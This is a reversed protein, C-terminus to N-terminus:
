FVWGANVRALFQFASGAFRSNSWVGFSTSPLQADIFFNGSRFGFSVLDARAALYNLAGLQLTVGVRPLWYFAFDPKEIFTVAAGITPTVYAGAVLGSDLTPFLAGGLEFSLQVKRFWWGLQLSPGFMAQSEIAGGSIGGGLFFRTHDFLVAEVPAEPSV